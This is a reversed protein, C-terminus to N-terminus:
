ELDQVVTARKRVADLVYALIIAEVESIRRSEELGESLRASDLNEADSDV